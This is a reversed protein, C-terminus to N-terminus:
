LGMWTLITQLWGLVAFCMAIFVWFKDHDKVLPSRSFFTFWVLLAQTILAYVNLWAPSPANLTAHVWQLLDQPSAGVLRPLALTLPQIFLVVLSPMGM